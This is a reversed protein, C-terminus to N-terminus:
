SLTPEDGLQSVHRNRQPPSLHDSADTQKRNSRMETSPPAANVASDSKHLVKPPRDFDTEGARALSATTTRVRVLDGPMLPTTETAIIHKLGARSRRVIEFSFNDGESDSRIASLQYDSILRRTGAIQTELLQIEASAAEAERELALRHAAKLKDLNREAQDLKLWADEMGSVVEYKREEINAVDADTQYYLFTSAMGKKRLTDVIGRRKKKSAIQREILAQKGKYQGYAGRAVAVAAQLAVLQAQRSNREVERLRDAATTLAKSEQEGVLETLRNPIRVPQGSIEAHLVAASALVRKLKQTSEALRQQARAYEMQLYLEPRKGDGGGSLAIAHLVTMGPTFSYTGSRLEDFVVYIPEHRVLAVSAKCDRGFTQQYAAELNTVARDAFVGEVEVSGILPILVEGSENVVYVGTLETREVLRSYTNATANGDDGGGLREFFIIKLSHGLSFRSRSSVLSANRDHPLVPHIVAQAQEKGREVTADSLVPPFATVAVVATLSITGFSFLLVYRLRRQSFLGSRFSASNKKMAM